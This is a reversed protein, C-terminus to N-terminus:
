GSGRSCVTLAQCARNASSKFDYGNSAPTYACAKAGSSTLVAECKAATDLDAGAVADCLLADTIDAM